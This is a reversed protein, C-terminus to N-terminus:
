SAVTVFEILSKRAVPAHCLLRKGVTAKRTNISLLDPVQGEGAADRFDNITNFQSVRRFEFRYIVNENTIYRSSEVQM